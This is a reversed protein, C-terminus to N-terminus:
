KKRSFVLGIKGRVWESVKIIPSSSVKKRLIVQPLSVLGGPLFFMILMLLIANAIPQFDKLFRVGEWIGSMVFAGIIPGAVSGMGGVIAYVLTYVSGWVTFSAPSVFTMYHAYFAGAIGAWFCGTAFVIVKLRATNIGVSEALTEDQVIARMIRGIRFQEMRRMAIISIVLLTLGLYYYSAHSTFEITLLGFVPIASPPPINLLGVAGRTLSTWNLITLVVAQGLLLTMIAFYFGKLRLAPYGIIVAFLAPILGAVPLAAWFPAGFKMVMLASAYAGIGVFAMHGLSFAGVLMILRWSLCCISTFFGMIIIHQYYPSRVFLPLGIALALLALLSVTKYNSKMAWSM